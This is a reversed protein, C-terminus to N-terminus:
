EKIRVQHLGCYVGCKKSRYDQLEVTYTLDGTKENRGELCHRLIYDSGDYVVIKNYYKRLEKLKM